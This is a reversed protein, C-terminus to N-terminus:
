QLLGETWVAPRRGEEKAQDIEKQVYAAWVPERIEGAPVVLNIRRALKPNREAWDRGSPGIIDGDLRSRIYWEQEHRYLMKHLSTEMMQFWGSKEIDTKSVIIEGAAILEAITRPDDFRYIKRIAALQDPSIVISIGALLNWFLKLM